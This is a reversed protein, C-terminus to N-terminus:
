PAVERFIFGNRVGGNSALENFCVRKTKDGEDDYYVITACNSLQQMSSTNFQATTDFRIMWKQGGVEKLGSVNITQNPHSGTLVPQNQVANPGSIQINRMNVLNSSIQNSIRRIYGAAPGHNDVLIQITVTDGNKITNINFNTDGNIAVISTDGDILAACPSNFASYFPASPAEASPNTTYAAVVYYYASNIPPQDIFNTSNPALNAILQYQSLDTGHNQKSRFLKFGSENDSNDQWSISIKGCVDNNAGTIAPKNLNFVKSYHIVYHTTTQPSVMQTQPLASELKYEQGNYMLKAPVNNLTYAGVKTTYSGYTGTGSYNQPGTIIWATPINSHVALVGTEEVLPCVTKDIWRFDMLLHGLTNYEPVTLAEGEFLDIQARCSPVTVRVKDLGITQGPGIDFHVKDYLEQTNMWDDNQGPNEVYFMKYSAIGVKYHCTTSNNTIWGSAIGSKSGDDEIRGDLYRWSGECIEVGSELVPDYSHLYVIDFYVTEGAKVTQNM